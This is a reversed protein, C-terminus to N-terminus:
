CFPPIRCEHPAMIRILMSSYANLIFHNLRLMEKVLDFGNAIFAFSGGYGEGRRAPQQEGTEQAEGRVM